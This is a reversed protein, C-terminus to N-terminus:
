FKAQKLLPSPYPKWVGEGHINSFHIPPYHPPPIVRVESLLHFILNFLNLCNPLMQIVRALELTKTFSGAAKYLDWKNDGTKPWKNSISALFKQNFFFVRHTAVTPKLEHRITEEVRLTFVKDNTSKLCSFTRYIFGRSAKVCQLNNLSIWLYKVNTLTVQWVM